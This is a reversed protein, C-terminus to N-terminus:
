HPSTCLAFCPSFFGRLEKFSTAVRRPFNFGSRRLRLDQVEIAEEEFLAVLSGGHNGSDSPPTGHYFFSPVRLVSSFFLLSGKSNHGNAMSVESPFSTGVGRGWWCVAHLRLFLHFFCRRRGRLLLPPRSYQFRGSLDRSSRPCSLSARQSATVATRISLQPHFTRTLSHVFPLHSPPPSSPFFLFFM